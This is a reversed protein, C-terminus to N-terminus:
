GSVGNDLLMQLYELRRLIRARLVHCVRILVANFEHDERAIHAQTAHVLRAHPCRQANLQICRGVLREPSRMRRM